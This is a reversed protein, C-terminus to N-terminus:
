GSRWCGRCQGHPDWHGWVSVAAPGAPVATDGGSGPAEWGMEECSTGNTGTPISGSGAGKPFPNWGQGVPYGGRGQWWEREKVTM